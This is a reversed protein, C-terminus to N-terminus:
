QVSRTATRQAAFGGNKGIAVTTRKNRCLRHQTAPKEM